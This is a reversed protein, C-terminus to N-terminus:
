GGERLWNNRAHLFNQAFEVAGLWIVSFIGAWFLFPIVEILKAHEILECEIIINGPLADRRVHVRGRRKLLNKGTEAEEASHGHVEFSRVTDCSVQIELRSTQNKKRALDAEIPQMRDRRAFDVAYQSFLRFLTLRLKPEPASTDRECESLDAGVLSTPALPGGQAIRLRFLRHSDALVLEATHM